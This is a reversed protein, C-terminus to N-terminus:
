ISVTISRIELSRETKRSMPFSEDKLKERVSYMNIAKIIRIRPPFQPFSIRYLPDREQDLARYLENDRLIHSKESDVLNAGKIRVKLRSRYLFCIEM